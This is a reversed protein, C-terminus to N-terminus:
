SESKVFQGIRELALAINQKSTTYAFRVFQEAHNCGFDAGPTAVVGADELLRWCWAFSDSTLESADAYIYFAGEPVRPVKFGLELLGELLLDRRERLEQKRAEFVEIAEPEFASLAAYQSLTPASIFLNQAIKEMEAIAEVSSVMWGLRWGTMGFYKSFSNIVVANPDIGIASTTNVDYTLGHYIEDVILAGGQQRTEEAIGKIADASLVAGTPNAPSAILVGATNESWNNRVLDRDLQFNQESSVPISFAGAEVARLFQRNCPYGPDAMLLHKGQEVLLTISLLLGASAGATVLVQAPDIRQGYRQYHFQAIKERLPWIGGTPTYGLRVEDLARKAAEVVSPAAGFDPEGAGLHVIDRGADSLEQARKLLDMVKFSEIERARATWQVSM